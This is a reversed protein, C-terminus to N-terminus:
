VLVLCDGLGMASADDQERMRGRGPMGGQIGEVKEYSPLTGDLQQELNNVRAEAFSHSTHVKKRCQRRRYAPYGSRAATDSGNYSRL